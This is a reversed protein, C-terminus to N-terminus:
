RNLMAAALGAPVLLGAVPLVESLSKGMLRVTV